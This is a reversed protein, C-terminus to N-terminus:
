GGGVPPFLGVRDGEALLRDSDSALGNVMVLKVDIPDIELFEFVQAVTTGAPVDITLVGGSGSTAFRRLTAYLRIELVM